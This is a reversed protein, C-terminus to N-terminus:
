KLITLSGAYPETSSGDTFTVKLHYIYVGPSVLEEKYHGDWKFQVDNTEFVMEGWRNFIQLQMFKVVHKSGYIEFYDNNGDGNPSFVNPIFLNHKQIVFVTIQGNAKCGSSDEANLSYLTTVIPSAVATSCNNCSLADSPSWNYHVGNGTSNVTIVTDEGYEITIDNPISIIFGQSAALVFTTDFTCDGGDQISVSYSGSSLHNINQTNSQNSWKIVYPSTGGNIQLDIHGNNIEPCAPNEAFFSTTFGVSQTM